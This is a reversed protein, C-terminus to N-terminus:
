KWKYISWDLGTKYKQNEVPTQTRNLGKLVDFPFLYMENLELDIGVLFDYSDETYKWKDHKWGDKTKYSNRGNLQIVKYERKTNNTNRGIKKVQVKKLGDGFDVIYDWGAQNDIVPKAITLNRKLCEKEFELEALRGLITRYPNISLLLGM